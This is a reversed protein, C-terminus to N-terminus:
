ASGAERHEHRGDHEHHHRAGGDRGLADLLHQVRLRRDDVRLSGARVDGRGPEDLEAVDLEAVGAGLLRHEAADAEGRPGPSVVAMTPLVPLPLVVSM